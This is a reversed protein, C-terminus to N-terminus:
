PETTIKLDFSVESGSASNECDVDQGEIWMYIRVKTIGAELDFIQTAATNAATTAYDISVTDFFDDDRTTYLTPSSVQLAVADSEAIAAKVGSYALRTAGTTGLSAVGYTDRAHAVAAATHVDYNPEWIYKPSTTGNNLAQINAITDGSTTNGLVVFAIRAANKIGKDPITAPDVGTPVTVRVGSQGTLYIESDQDVKFFLDFAIYAGEDGKADTQKAAKLLYDGDDNSYVTGKFMEMKGGADVTGITSVPEMTDPIQNVNNGYSPTVTTLDDKQVVSKWNTGDASIQIGNQAEVNVSLTEVTVNKNATFWAYTTTTFMVTTFFLAILLILMRRKRDQKKKKSREM